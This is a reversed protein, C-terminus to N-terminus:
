LSFLQCLHARTALSTTSEYSIFRVGKEGEEHARAALNTSEYSITTSEYSIIRVGKEGEEHAREFLDPASHTGFGSADACGEGRRKVDWNIKYQVPEHRRSLLISSVPFSNEHQHQPPPL